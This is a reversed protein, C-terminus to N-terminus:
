KSELLRITNYLSLCNLVLVDMGSFLQLWVRTLDRYNKIHTEYRWDTASLDSVRQAMRDPQRKFPLANAMRLGFDNMLLTVKEQRYLGMTSIHYFFYYYMNEKLINM